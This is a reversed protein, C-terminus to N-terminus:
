GNRVPLQITAVAGVVATNCQKIRWSIDKGIQQKHLHVALISAGGHRLIRSGQEDSATKSVMLTVAPYAGQRVCHGITTATKILERQRELHSVGVWKETLLSTQRGCPQRFRM